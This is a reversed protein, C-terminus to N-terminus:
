ARTGRKGKVTARLWTRERSAHHREREYSNDRIEQRKSYSLDSSGSSVRVRSRARLELEPKKKRKNKKNRKKNKHHKTNRTNNKTM